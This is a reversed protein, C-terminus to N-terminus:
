KFMVIIAITLIKDPFNTPMLKKDIEAAESQTGITFM